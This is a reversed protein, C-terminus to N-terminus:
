APPIVRPGVRRQPDGHSTAAVRVQIRRAAESGISARGHETDVPRERAKMSVTACCEQAVLRAVLEIEVAIGL